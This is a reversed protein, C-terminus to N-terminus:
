PLRPVYRPDFLLGPDVNMLPKVLRYKGPLDPALAPTSRVSVQASDGYVSKLTEQVQATCLSQDGSRPGVICAIYEARSTQHVQYEDLGPVRSMALDIQRQTVARGDPTLTLNKVRGEVAAITMGSNRGCPCRSGTELRVMDGVEFRVVTYWPNQFTTVLIRGVEPGGHEKALPIFDVRCFETNEHLRGAECEM